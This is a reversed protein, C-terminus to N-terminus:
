RRCWAGVRLEAAFCQDTEVDYAHIRRGSVRCAVRPPIRKGSAEVSVPEFREHKIAFVPRAVEPVRVPSVIPSMVIHPQESSRGRLLEEIADFALGM